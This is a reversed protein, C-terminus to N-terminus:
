GRHELPQPARRTDHPRPRPHPGVGPAGSAETLQEESLARRTAGQPPELPDGGKSQGLIRRRASRAQPGQAIRSKPFECDAVTGNGSTGGRSAAAGNIGISSGDQISGSSSILDKPGYASQPTANTIKASHPSNAIKGPSENSNVTPSSTAAPTMGYLRANTQTTSVM